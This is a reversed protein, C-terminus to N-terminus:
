ELDSIRMKLQGSSLFYVFCIIRIVDEPPTWRIWQANRCAHRHCTVCGSLHNFNVDFHVVLTLVFNIDTHLQQLYSKHDTVSYHKKPHSVSGRCM